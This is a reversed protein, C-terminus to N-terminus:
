KKGYSGEAAIDAGEAGGERKQLNHKVAKQFNGDIADNSTKQKTNAEEVRGGTSFALSGFMETIHHGFFAVGLVCAAAILLAVM